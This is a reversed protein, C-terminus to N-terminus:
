RINPLVASSSYPFELIAVRTALRKANPQGGCLNQEGGKNPQGNGALLTQDGTATKKAWDRRSECGLVMHRTKGVIFEFVICKVM